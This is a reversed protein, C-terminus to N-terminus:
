RRSDFNQLNIVDDDSAFVDLALQFKVDVNEAQLGIPYLLEAGAFHEKRADSNMVPHDDIQKRPGVLFGDAVTRAVQIV